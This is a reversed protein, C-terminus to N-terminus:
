ARKRSAVNEKRTLTEDVSELQKKIKKLEM